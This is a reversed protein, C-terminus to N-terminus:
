EGYAVSVDDPTGFKGDIGASEITVREGRCSRRYRGGWPDTRSLRRTPDLSDAEADVLVAPVEGCSILKRGPGWVERSWERAEGRAQPLTSHGRFSFPSRAVLHLTVAAVVVALVVLAGVRGDRTM